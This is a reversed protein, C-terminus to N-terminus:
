VNMLYSTLSFSNKVKKQQRDVKEYMKNEHFFSKYMRSFLLSIKCANQNPKTSNEFKRSKVGTELM